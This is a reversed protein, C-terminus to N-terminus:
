THRGAPKSRRRTSKSSGALPFCRLRHAAPACVVKWSFAVSSAPQGTRSPGPQAPTTFRPARRMSGRLTTSREKVALEKPWGLRCCGAPCCHRLVRVRGLPGMPVDPPRARLEHPGHAFHCEAGYSCAGRKAWHLCLTTQLCVVLRLEKTLGKWSPVKGTADATRCPPSGHRDFRVKYLAGGGLAKGKRVM